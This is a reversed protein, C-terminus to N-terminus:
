SSKAEPDPEFFLKWIIFGLVLVLLLVGFLEIVAFFLRVAALLMLVFVFGVALVAVAAIAIVPLPVHM